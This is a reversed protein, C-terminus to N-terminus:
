WSDAKNKGEPKEEREAVDYATKCNIRKFGCFNFLRLFTDFLGTAKKIAHGSGIGFNVRADAQTTIYAKGCRQNRAARQDVIVAQNM